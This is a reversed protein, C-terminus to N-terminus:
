SHWNRDFSSCQGFPEALEHGEVFAIQRDLLTADPPKEARITSSFRRQDPRQESEKIWGASVGEDTSLMDNAVADGSM